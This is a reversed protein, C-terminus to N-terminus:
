WEHQSFIFYVLVYISINVLACLAALSLVWGGCCQSFFVPCSVVWPSTRLWPIVCGVRCLLLVCVMGVVCACCLCVSYLLLVTCDTMM